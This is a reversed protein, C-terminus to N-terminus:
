PMLRRYIIFGPEYECWLQWPGSGEFRSRTEESNIKGVVWESPNRVDVLVPVMSYQTMYYAADGEIRGQFVPYDTAFGVVTVNGLCDRLPDLGREARSVLDQNYNPYFSLDRRILRVFSAIALLAVLAMMLLVRRAATLHM